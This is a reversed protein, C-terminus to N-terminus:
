VCAKSSLSLGFPDATFTSPLTELWDTFPVYLISTLPSSRSPLSLMLAGCAM